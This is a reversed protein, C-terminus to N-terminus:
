HSCFSRDAPCFPFTFGSSGSARPHGPDSHSFSLLSHSLASLPLSVGLSSSTMRVSSDPQASPILVSPETLHCLFAEAHRGFLPCFWAGFWARAQVLNTRFFERSDTSLTNQFTLIQPSEFPPM